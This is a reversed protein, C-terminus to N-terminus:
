TSGPQLCCLRIAAKAWTRPAPRGRADQRCDGSPAAGYWARYEPNHPFAGRILRNRVARPLVRAAYDVLLVPPFLGVRIRLIYRLRELELYEYTHYNNLGYPKANRKQGLAGKQTKEETHKREPLKHAVM